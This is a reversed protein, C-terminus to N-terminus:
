YRQATFVTLKNELLFRYQRLIFESLQKFEADNRPCLVGYGFWSDSVYYYYKKIESSYGTWVLLSDKTVICNSCELLKSEIGEKRSNVNSWGQDRFTYITIDGKKYTPSNMAESEVLVFGPAQFQSYSNASFLLLFTCFLLKM